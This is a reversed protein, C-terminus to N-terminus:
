AFNIKYFLFLGYLVMFLGATLLIINLQNAYDKIIVKKYDLVSYQVRLKPDNLKKAPYYGETYKVTVWEGDQLQFKIIPHYYENGHSGHELENGILFADTEICDNLIAKDKKKRIIVFLFLIIGGLCSLIAQYNIDM